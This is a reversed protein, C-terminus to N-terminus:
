TTRLAALAARFMEISDRSPAMVLLSDGTRIQFGDGPSSIIKGDRMLLLVPAVQNLAKFTARASGTPGVVFEAIYRSVQGLNPSPPPAVFIGVVEPAIASFALISAVIDFIPFVEDIDSSAKASEVLDRDTVVTLIRLDNNQKRASMALLLNDGDDDLACVLTSARIVGAERLALFPRSGSAYIALQGSLQLSRAVSRDVTIIVYDV